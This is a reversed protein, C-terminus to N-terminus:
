CSPPFSFTERVVVARIVDSTV